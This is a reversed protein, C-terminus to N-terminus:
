YTGVEIGDCESLSIGYHHMDYKHRKESKREATSDAVYRSIRETASADPKLGAHLLVKQAAERPSAVIEKFDLDLVQQEVWPHNARFANTRQLTLAFSKLQEKGIDKRDIDNSFPRRQNEVLSCWSAIVDQFARHTHVIRADPYENLLAEISRAHWPLKLCWRQVAPKGQRRRWWSLFKLWRRHETYVKEFCQADLWERYKPLDFRVDYELSHFALSHASFDEEAIGIGMDHIGRLSSCWFDLLLSELFDLRNKEVLGELQPNSLDKVSPLFFNEEIRPCSVCGSADLMRHLFTTGTRNLGLIFIPAEIKENDIEPHMQYLHYLNIRSELKSALDFIVLPMVDGPVSIATENVIRTLGEMAFQPVCDELDLGHKDCLEQPGALVTDMTMDVKFHQSDFPWIHENRMAWARSEKLLLLANPKSPLPHCDDEIAGTEIPFQSDVKWNDFWYQAFQDYLPWYSAIHSDNRGRVAARFEKYSVEKTNFGSAKMWPIETMVFHPQRSCNYVTHKRQPNQTINLVMECCAGADEHLDLDTHTSLGTELFVQLIRVLPDDAVLYGTSSSTSMVPLRFIAVPLQVTDRVHSIVLENAFKSWNYGCIELPLCRKMGAVDPMGSDTISVGAWENAFRCMYQPFIGLTSTYFLHKKKFTLCMRLVGKLSLCNRECMVEYPAFLVLSSAFHYVADVEKALERFQQLSIGFLDYEIDGALAVVKSRFEERWIGAEEMAKVIRGMAADNDVARVTCYVKEIHCNPDSLLDLCTPLTLFPSFLYPM